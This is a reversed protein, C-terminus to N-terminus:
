GNIAQPVVARGRAWRRATPDSAATPNPNDHLLRTFSRWDPNPKCEAEHAEADGGIQRSIYHDLIDESKELLKFPRNLRISATGVAVLAGRSRPQM